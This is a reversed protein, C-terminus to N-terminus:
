LSGDPSKSYHTHVALYGAPAAPARRLVTTSRGTRVFARGDGDLGESQWCALVCVLSGDASTELVVPDDVFRFGRTHPWVESWQRTVLDDLGATREAVTGFGHVDPAFLPRAGEVDRERVCRAFRDLWVAIPTPPTM